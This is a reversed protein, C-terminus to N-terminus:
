LGAYWFLIVSRLLSATMQSVLIFSDITFGSGAQSNSYPWQKTCAKLRSHHWLAHGPVEFM